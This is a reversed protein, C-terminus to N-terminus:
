QNSHNSFPPIDRQTLIATGSGRFVQGLTTYARQSFQLQTNPRIIMPFGASVKSGLAAAPATDGVYFLQGTLLDAIQVPFYPAPTAADNLPNFDVSIVLSRFAKLIAQNGITALDVMFSRYLNGAADATQDMGVANAFNFSVTIIRENNDWNQLNILPGQTGGPGAFNVGRQGNPIPM